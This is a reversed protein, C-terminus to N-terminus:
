QIPNYNNSIRRYMHGNYNQWMSWWWVANRCEVTLLLNKNSDEMDIKYIPKPGLRDDTLTFGASPFTQTFVWSACSLDYYYETIMFPEIQKFGEVSSPSSNWGNVIDMAATPLRSCTFGSFEVEYWGDVGLLKPGSRDKRCLSELSSWYFLSPECDTTILPHQVPHQSVSRCGEGSSVREKLAGAEQQATQHLECSRPNSDSGVSVVRSVGPTPTHSQRRDPRRTILRLSPRWYSIFHSTADAAWSFWQFISDQFIVVVPEPNFQIILVLHWLYFLVWLESRGGLIDMMEELLEDDFM